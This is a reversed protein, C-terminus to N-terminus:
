ITLSGTGCGVDALILNSPILKELAFSTVRDDFYSKRIREWDGAVGEFYDRSRQARRQRCQRLRRQDEKLEPLDAFRRAVSDFLQRAPEAMDRRLSFYVNTGERRDSVFGAERLIALNRSVSSQMSDVVEQIEGVALEEEAVAALIRLRTPDALAKFIRVWDM